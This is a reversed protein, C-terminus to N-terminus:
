QLFCSLIQLLVVSRTLYNLSCALKFFEWDEKQVNGMHLNSLVKQFLIDNQMIGQQRMQQILEFVRSFSERYLRSAAQLTPSSENTVVAYLPTDMIPPLQGFDGFMIVVLGGFSKDTNLPFIQRLRTDIAHLLKLSIMSM